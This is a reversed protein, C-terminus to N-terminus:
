EDDQHCDCECEHCCLVHVGMDCPTASSAMETTM